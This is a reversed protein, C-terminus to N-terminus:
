NQARKFFSPLFYRTYLVGVTTLTSLEITTDQIINKCLLNIENQKHDVLFYM